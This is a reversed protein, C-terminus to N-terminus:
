FFGLFNVEICGECLVCDCGIHRRMDKNMEDLCIACSKWDDGRDCGNYTETM